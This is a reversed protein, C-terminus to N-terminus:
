LQGKFARDLVSPLLADLEAATETQMRKQADVKVQLDELYEVVQRQKHRALTPVSFQRITKLGLDAMGSGRIGAVAQRQIYPSVIMWYLFKADVREPDPRVVAISYSALFEENTDVFRAAGITGYRALLIDNRQPRCKRSLRVYDERSILKADAFGITRNPGFDKPSVLPIGQEVAKPMEHNMDGVFGTLEDLPQPKHSALLSQATHMLVSSMLAKTEELAQQRLGRADEIRAALEEIRTVIRHQESLPPLPVPVPLFRKAKLETKIGGPVHELLLNRFTRSRLLWWLYRVDTRAHNPEYAGYHITAAAPVINDEEYVAIAGKAANIGSVVLDGPRILIMSTKSAGEERLYIRGDNFGIKEVIRIEGALLADSTPKEKRESLVASLPVLPYSANV